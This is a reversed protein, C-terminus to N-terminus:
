LAVFALQIFEGYVLALAVIGGTSTGVIWDFLETIKRNTRQELQELIEIQILGRIGGGDLFLIRSGEHVNFSYPKREGGTKKYKLLEKQQMTLAIAEDTNASFSELFFGFFMSMASAVINANIGSLDLNMNICQQLRDYLTSFTNGDEMDKLTVFSLSSSSCLEGTVYGEGNFRSETFSGNVIKSGDMSNEGNVLGNTAGHHEMIIRTGLPLLPLIVAPEM